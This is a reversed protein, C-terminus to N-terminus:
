IEDIIGKVKRRLPILEELLESSRRDINKNPELQKIYAEIAWDITCLEDDTFPKM